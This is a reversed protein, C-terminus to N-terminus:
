SPEDAEEDSSEPIVAYVSRIFDHQSYERTQVSRPDHRCGLSLDPPPAGLRELVLSIAEGTRRWASICADLAEVNPLDAIRWERWIYPWTGEDVGVLSRLDRDARCAEKLRHYAVDSSEFVGIKFKFEIKPGDGWTTGVKASSRPLLMGRHVILDRKKRLVALLEDEYLQDVCATLAAREPHSQLEM